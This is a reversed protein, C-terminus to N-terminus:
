PTASPNMTLTHEALRGAATVGSVRLVAVFTFPGPAAANAPTGITPQAQCWALGLAPTHRGARSCRRLGAIVARIRMIEGFVISLRVTVKSIVRKM